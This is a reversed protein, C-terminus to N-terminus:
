ILYIRVKIEKMEKEKEEEEEEEKDVTDRRVIIRVEDQPDGVKSIWKEGQRERKKKSKATGENEM